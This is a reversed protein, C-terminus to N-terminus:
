PHLTAQQKFVRQYLSPSAYGDQPLGQTAQYQRVADQTKLGPFGDPHGSDFGMENLKTQLALMEALSLASTEVTHGIVLEQSGALQSALHSVSLAYNVSRNWDMVVDFNAFVMFAPGHWGQPLLIATNNLSQYQEPVAVGMASWETVSKRHKYHALSYDFDAPLQVPLAVPEGTRWGAQKLYNAASNLADPLSNWVDIKGDADADVAHKIFTTPMFQMHGMAGAWSGRMKAVSTHDADIIRMMNLLEQRFFTARRGEFALTTLASPLGFGGQVQGYQTELGWFSVLVHKSVGYESEVADLLIQHKDLMELGHQVIVPNVRKHLYNLFTSIFEPQARDLQIVRPLYKANKFTAQATVPSIGAAIAESAFAQKWDEFTQIDIATAKAQLMCLWLVLLVMKKM